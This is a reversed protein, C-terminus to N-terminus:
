VCPADCALGFRQFEWVDSESLSQQDRGAVVERVSRSVACGECRFGWYFHMVPILPVHTIQFTINYINVASLHAQLNTVSSVCWIHNVYLLYMNIFFFNVGCDNLSHSLSYNVICLSLIVLLDAV